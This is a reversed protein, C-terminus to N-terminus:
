LEERMRTVMQHVAFRARGVGLSGNSRVGLVAFYGPAIASALYTLDDAEIILDRVRGSGIRDSAADASAALAALEIEALELDCDDDDDAFAMEVSLGDTGVVGAFRAGKVKELAEALIDTMSM